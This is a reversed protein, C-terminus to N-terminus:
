DLYATVSDLRVDARGAEEATSTTRMLQSLVDGVTQHVYKNPSSWGNDSKEDGSDEEDFCVMVSADIDNYDEMLPTELPKEKKNDQSRPSSKCDEASVAGEAINSPGKKQKPDVVDSRKPSIDPVLCLFAAASVARSSLCCVSAALELVILSDRGKNNLTCVETAVGAHVM